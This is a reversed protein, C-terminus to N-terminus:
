SACPFSIFEVPYPFRIAEQLGPVSLTVNVKEECTDVIEAFGTGDAFLKITRAHPTEPDAGVVRAQSEEDVITVAV